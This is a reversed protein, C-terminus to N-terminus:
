VVELAGDNISVSGPSLKIKSSSTSLEIGSSDMVIKLDSTNEITISGAGPSDDLTLTASATKIIKVDPLAPSKPTDGSGWFCGSWIPVDPNGAEFEIWVKAGIPPIFFFGVSPGAYPVSPLAWGSDNEGYITLVKARVRGLNLPDQNDTVEGRYKGFYKTPKNSM